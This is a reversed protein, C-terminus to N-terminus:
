RQDGNLAVLDIGNIRDVADGLYSMAINPNALVGWSVQRPLGVGM